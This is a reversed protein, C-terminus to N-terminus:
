LSMFTVEPNKLQEQNIPQTRYQEFFPINLLSIIHYTLGVVWYIVFPWVIAHYEPEWWGLKNYNVLIQDFDLSGM